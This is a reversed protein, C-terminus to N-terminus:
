SQSRKAKPQLDWAQVLSMYGGLYLGMRTLGLLHASQMVRSLSPIRPRGAQYVSAIM